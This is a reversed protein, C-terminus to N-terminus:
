FHRVSANNVNFDMFYNQGYDHGHGKVRHCVNWFLMLKTAKLIHLSKNQFSKFTAKNQNDHYPITNKSASYIHNLPM